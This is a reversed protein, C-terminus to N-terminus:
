SKSHLSYIAFRDLSFLANTGCKKPPTKKTDEINKNNTKRAVGCFTVAVAFAVAVAVAFVVALDKPWFLAEPHCPTISATV